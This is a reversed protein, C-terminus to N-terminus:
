CRLGHERRAKLMMSYFKPALEKYRPYLPNALMEPTPRDSVADRPFLIVVLNRFEQLETETLREM